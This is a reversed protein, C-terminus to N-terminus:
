ASEFRIIKNTAAAAEQLAQKPEQQNTEALAPALAVRTMADTGEPWFPSNYWKPIQGAVQEIIQGAQQNNFWAIPATLVPSSWAKKLTPWVQRYTFDALVAAPTFHEWVVFDAAMDVYASSRPVSVGTGGWTATPASKVSQWIPMPQMTWKGKTPELNQQPFGVINWSPGLISLIQGNVFASNRSPGVPTVMAWKDKYLADQLFQLTRVGAEEQWEPQGQANFFGGGQQQTLMWWYGWSTPDIDLLYAKGGSDKQLKKGVDAMQEYTKIPAAIGYKEFLDFRYAMACANLENGLGNIEGKWSWPDTASGTYLQETGGHQQIRDNLSIFVNVGGKIFQSYRSIEVDAIDPGGQGAQATIMLKDHMQGYPLTLFNLNFKGAYDARVGQTDGKSYYTNFGNKQWKTRTDSFAWMELTPKGALRGSSGCAALLPALVTMGGVAAAARLFQRRSTPAVAM